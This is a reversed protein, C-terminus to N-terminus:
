DGGKRIASFLAGSSDLGSFPEELAHLLGGGVAGVDGHGLKHVGGVVLPADDGVDLAPVGSPGEHDEAAVLIGDVGLVGAVSGGSSIIVGTAGDGVELGETHNGLTSKDRLEWHLELPVSSLLDAQESALSNGLSVLGLSDRDVTGEVEVHYVVM